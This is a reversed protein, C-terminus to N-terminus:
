ASATETEQLGSALSLQLDELKEQQELARMMRVPEQLNGSMLQDLAFNKNLRHDSVRNEKFQYSRIKESRSGSGLQSKRLSSVMENQKDVEVQKLRTAIIRIAIEKNLIQSREERAICFIGTPKHRCLVATEVKNVNQGGKGGARMTQFELENMDLEFDIEEVEPMIAVTATSTHVRGATETKPVRQVRHVGSEFKLKSFVEPGSVSLSAETLGGGDKKTETLIKCSIGEMECYKMYMNM